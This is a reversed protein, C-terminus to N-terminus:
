NTWKLIETFKGDISGSDYYTDFEEEGMYARKMKGEGYMLYDLMDVMTNFFVYMKREHNFIYILSDKFTSDANHNLLVGLVRSRDSYEEEHITKLQTKM